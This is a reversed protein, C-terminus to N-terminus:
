RAAALCRAFLENLSSIGLRAYARRRLTAVTAAGIGLDLGIAENTMGLVARACVEIQRPTLAPDIRGIRQELLVVPPRPDTQWLPPPALAFHKGVLAAVLPALDAFCSIEGQGFPGLAVTRYLNLAFWRGQAQDVISLRDTLGFEDYIRQRYGPEEIEGAKLRLVLPGEGAGGGAIARANPDFRGFGAEQYIRGAARALAGGGVSEAAILRSGLAADFAVVSLHPAALRRDLAEALLLPFGPEGLARVLPAAWLALDEPSRDPRSLM